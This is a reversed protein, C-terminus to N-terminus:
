WGDIPSPHRAQPEGKQTKKKKKKLSYDYINEQEVTTSVKKKREKKKKISTTSTPAQAVRAARNAEVNAGRVNLALQLGLPLHKRHQHDRARQAAHRKEDVRHVLVTRSKKRKIKKKKKKEQNKKEQNKKKEHKIVNM